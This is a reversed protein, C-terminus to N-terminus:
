RLEMCCTCVSKLSVLPVPRCLEMVAKKLLRCCSEVLGELVLRRWPTSVAACFM